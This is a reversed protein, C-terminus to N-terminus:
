AEDGLVSPAGIAGTTAGRRSWWRALAGGLSLAVVDVVCYGGPIGSPPNGITFPGASTAWAWDGFSTGILELWTTLLACAIYVRPSGGKWIFGAFAAFLVFGLLDPRPALTVGWVSWAALGAMTGQMVRRGADGDLVSRGLNLAALYVLGHGPPVFSPVDRLRYVYLGLGPSLAYEGLTALALAVLVQARQLPRERWLAAILFAWTAAGIWRQRELPAGADLWLGIAIWFAVALGLWPDSRRPTGRALALTTM